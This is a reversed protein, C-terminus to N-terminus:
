DVIRISRPGSGCYACCNECGLRRKYGVGWQRNINAHSWAGFCIKEGPICRLSMSSNESPRLLYVRYDGPWAHPRTQSYFEVALSDWHCNVVNWILRDPVPVPPAIAPSNNTAKPPMSVAAPITPEGSGRRTDNTRLQKINDEILGKVGIEIPIAAGRFGLAAMTIGILILIVFFPNLEV